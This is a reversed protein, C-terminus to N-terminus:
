VPCSAGGGAGSWIWQSSSLHFDSCAAFIFRRPNSTSTPSGWHSVRNVTVFFVDMRKNIYLWRPDNQELLARVSESDDIELEHVTGCFMCKYDAPGIKRLTGGCSKCNIKEM